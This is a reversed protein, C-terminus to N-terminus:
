PWCRGTLREYGEHFMEILDMDLVNMAYMVAASGTAIAIGVMMFVFADFINRM